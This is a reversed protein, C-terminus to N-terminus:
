PSSRIVKSQPANEEEEEECSAKIASKIRWPFRKQNKKKRKEKEKEESPYSRLISPPNAKTRTNCRIDCHDKRPTTSTTRGPSTSSASLTIPRSAWKHGSSDSKVCKLTNRTVYSVHLDQYNWFTGRASWKKVCFKFPRLEEEAWSIWVIWDTFSLCFM